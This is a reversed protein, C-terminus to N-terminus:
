LMGERSLRVQGLNASLVNGLMVEHLGLAFARMPDLGFFKLAGAIVAAGLATAPIASHKRLFTGMATRTGGVIYM